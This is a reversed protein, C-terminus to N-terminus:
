ACKQGRGNKAPAIEAHIAAQTVREALAGLTAWDDDGLQRRIRNQAREWYPKADNLVKRGEETLTYVRRSQPGVHMRVWGSKRACALRRSFTEDSAAFNRALDCQAIEGASDIAHM